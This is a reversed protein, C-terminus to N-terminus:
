YLVKFLPHILFYATILVGWIIFTRLQNQWPGFVVHYTTVDLYFRYYGGNTSSNCLFFAVVFKILNFINLMLFLFYNIYSLSPLDLERLLSGFLLNYYLPFFKHIKLSKKIALTDLSRKFHHWKKMGFLLVKM